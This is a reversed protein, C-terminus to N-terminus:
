AKARAASASSGVLLGIGLAVAIRAVVPDFGLIAPDFLSM